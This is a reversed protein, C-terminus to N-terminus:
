VLIFLSANWIVIVSYIFVASWTAIVGLKPWHRYIDWLILACLGAGVVKLVMFGVDGIIPALIPNCEWALGLSLLIETLIGDVIILCVLCGLLRYMKKKSGPSLLSRLTTM